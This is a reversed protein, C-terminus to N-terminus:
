NMKGGSGPVPTGTATVCAECLGNLFLEHGEILFGAPGHGAPLPCGPLDFMGSCGRCYFHHHHEKGAREYLTGAMPHAVQVLWGDAVLLNLNRYVTAQNLSPVTQQARVLVESVGLPRGNRRFVGRIAERQQTHRRISPHHRRAQSSM